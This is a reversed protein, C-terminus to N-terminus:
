ERCYGESTCLDPGPNATSYQRLKHDSPDLYKDRPLIDLDIKGFELQSSEIEPSLTVAAIVNQLDLDVGPIVSGILDSIVDVGATIINTPVLAKVKEKVDDQNPTSWSDSYVEGSVTFQLGSISLLTESSQHMDTYTPSDTANLTVTATTRGETNLVDFNGPLYNSLFEFVDGVAGVVESAVYSEDHITKDKASDGSGCGGGDNDIGTTEFMPEQRHNRWLNRGACGQSSVLGEDAESYIAAAMEKANPYDGVTGQWVVYRSASVTAQKMDIYKGVLPVILFLPVLVFASAVLMETMAQGAQRKM